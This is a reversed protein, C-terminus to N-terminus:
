EGIIGKLKTIRDILTTSPMSLQAISGGPTLYKSTIDSVFKNLLDAMSKGVIIIQENKTKLIQKQFDDAVIKVKQVLGCFSEYQRLLDKGKNIDCSAASLVGKVEEKLKFVIGDGMLVFSHVSFVEPVESGSEKLGRYLFVDENFRDYFYKTTLEVDAGQM